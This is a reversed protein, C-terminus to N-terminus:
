IYTLRGGRGRGEGKTSHNKFRRKSQSLNRLSKIVKDQGVHVSTEADRIDTEREQWRGEREKLAYHRWSIPSLIKKPFTSHWSTLGQSKMIKQLSVLNGLAPINDVTDAISVIDSVDEGVLLFKIRVAKEQRM